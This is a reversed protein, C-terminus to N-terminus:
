GSEALLDLVVLSRLHTLIDEEPAWVSIKGNHVIMLILSRGPLDRASVELLEHPAWYNLKVVDDEYEWITFGFKSVASQNPPNKGKKTAVAVCTDFWDQARAQASPPLSSKLAPM